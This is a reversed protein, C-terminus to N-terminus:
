LPQLAASGWGLKSSPHVELFVWNICTAVVRGYNFSAMARLGTSHSEGLILRGSLFVGLMLGVM